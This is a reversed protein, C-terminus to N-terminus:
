HHKLRLVMLDETFYKGKWKIAHKESGYTVFGFQEYLKKARDNQAVVTLNIQELGKLTRAKEIVAAILKGAIGQGRFDAAVYMRFLIGKHKLKERNRGDREFSVVGALKGDLFAGLTFNDDRDLTPFRALLDDNPTIRFHEEDLVLGKSLFEKYEDVRDSRLETIHLDEKM